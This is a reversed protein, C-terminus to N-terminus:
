NCAARARRPRRRRRPGRRAASGPTPCRATYATRTSRNSFDRQEESATRSLQIQECGMDGEGEIPSFIPLAIVPATSLAAPRASIEMLTRLSALLPFDCRSCDRLLFTSRSSEFSLLFSSRSHAFFDACVCCSTFSDCNSLSRAALWVSASGVLLNSRTSLASPTGSRISRKGNSGLLPWWHESKRAGTAVRNSSCNM